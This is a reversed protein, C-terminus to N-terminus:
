RGSLPVTASHPRWRALAQSARLRDRCRRPGARVVALRCCDPHACRTRSARRRRGCQRAGVRRDRDVTAASRTSTLSPENLASAGVTGALSAHSCTTWQPCRHWDHSNLPWTNSFHSAQRSPAASCARTCTTPCTAYWYMRCAQMRSDCRGGPLDRSLHGIPLESSRARAHTRTRTCGPSAIAGHISSCLPLDAGVRPRCTATAAISEFRSCPLLRRSDSRWRGWQWPKASRTRSDHATTRSSPALRCWRGCAWSLWSQSSRSMPTGLLRRVGDHRRSRIM